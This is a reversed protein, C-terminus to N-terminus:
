WLALAAGRHCSEDFRWHQGGTAGCHWHQGETVGRMLAGTSGGQLLEQEREREGTSGGTAAARM